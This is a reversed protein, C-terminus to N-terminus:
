PAEGGEASPKPEAAPAPPAESDGGDDPESAPDSARIPRISRLATDFARLHASRTRGDGAALTLTYGIGDVVLFAQRLSVTGNDFDIWYAGTGAHLQPARLTFGLKALLSSTRTAYDNADEGEKVREASLLMKGDPAHRVMWLLVNPYSTQETVQWNKPATMRVRWESSTYRDGDIDARATAAVSAVLALACVIRNM